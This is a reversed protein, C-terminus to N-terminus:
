TKEAQAAADSDTSGQSDGSPQKKTILHQFSERDLVKKELLLDRLAVLVEKNDALIQRARARQEDM